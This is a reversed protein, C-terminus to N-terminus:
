QALAPSSVLAPSGRPQFSIMEPMDANQGDVDVDQGYLPATWGTQPVEAWGTLPVEAPPPYAVVRWGGSGPRAPM